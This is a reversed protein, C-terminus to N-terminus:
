SPLTIIFPETCYFASCDHASNQKWCSKLRPGQSRLEPASVVQSGPHKMRSLFVVLCIWLLQEPPINPSLEIEGYFCINHTSM